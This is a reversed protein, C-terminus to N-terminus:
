IELILVNIKKSVEVFGDILIKGDLYLIDFLHPEEEFVKNYNKEKRNITAVRHHGAVVIKNPLKIQNFEKNWTYNRRTDERWNELSPNVAGHVFVYKDLEYFLPLKSLWEYLYPYQLNISERVEDYDDQEFDKGYLSKLTEKFGNKVINFDVRKYNGEFFEILFYDHNGLIVTARQMQSLRYIYELTEKAKLGRDFLDGIVILHHDLNSENYEKEKLNIIMEDFHSHIDSIVYYKM